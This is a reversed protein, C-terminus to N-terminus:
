AIHGPFAWTLSHMRVTEGQAKAPWRRILGKEYSNAREGQFVRSSCPQQIKKM